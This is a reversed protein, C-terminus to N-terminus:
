RGMLSNAIKMAEQLLYVAEDFHAWDNTGEYLVGGPSVDVVWSGVLQHFRVIEMAEVVSLLGLRNLNAQYIQNFTDAIAIPFRHVLGMSRMDDGDLSQLDASYHKMEAIYGRTAEIEVLAAVEAILAARVSRQESRATGRQGFWIGALSFFGALVAALSAAGITILSSTSAKISPDAMSWIVTCWEVPDAM